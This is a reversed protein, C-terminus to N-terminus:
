WLGPTGVNNLWRGIRTVFSRKELATMEHWKIKQCVGDVDPHPYGDALELASEEWRAAFSDDDWRKGAVSVQRRM